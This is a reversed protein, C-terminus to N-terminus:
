AAAELLDLVASEEVDRTARSQFGQAVQEHNLLHTLQTNFYAYMQGPTNASRAYKLAHVFLEACYDWQADNLPGYKGDWVRLAHECRSLVQDWTRGFPTLSERHGNRKSFTEAAEKWVLGFVSKV